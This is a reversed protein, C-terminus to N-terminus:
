QLPGRQLHSLEVIYGMEYWHWWAVFALRARDGITDRWVLRFFWPGDGGRRAVWVCPPITAHGLAQYHTIDESRHRVAEM